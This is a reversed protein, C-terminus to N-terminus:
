KQLVAVFMSDSRNSTGNILRADILTMGTQSCLKEIVGENEQWFVSCTIYIMRGGQKLFCSANIAIKEQLLPLADFKVPDFFYMQEPTRAWTGSGSCPVDCLINDFKKNGFALAIQSKEAVDIKYTAPIKLKYLKFREELNSIISQRSDSATIVTTRELDNLLLAKGGAGSCCDWWSEGVLPKYFGGTQQSAADQIVYEDELLLAEVKTGNPISVCNTSLLKFPISQGELKRLVSEINKRVRLFLDPQVLMSNLWSNSDIGDSLQISFPFLSNLEIKTGSLTEFYKFDIISHSKLVLNYVVSVAQELKNDNALEAKNIIAKSCRYWYFAISAILKRDRSGAKPHSKFYNKLYASLPMKGSYGILIEKVQYWIFKPPM